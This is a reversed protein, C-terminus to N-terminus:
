SGAAALRMARLGRKYFPLKEPILSIYKMVLERYSEELYMLYCASIGKSFTSHRRTKRGPEESRVVYGQSNQHEVKEGEVIAMYYALSVLIMLSIFRKGELKAGEIDYGGRKWDRFMEEISMRMAYRLLVEDLEALNSMIYWAEKPGRGRYHRKHYAAVNIPGFGKSETVKVGTFFRKEGAKLGLQSLQRKEGDPMEIYENKKLRLAIYSRREGLWKALDVGCFERDGLLVIRYDKLLQVVPELFTVQEQYNSSGKKGLLQFHIPMGRRRYVLSVVLLNMHGWQTRDIVLYLLSNPQFQQHLRQLLLPWWITQVTWHPLSFFRQLKRRRSDVLIPLPLHQALQELRVQQLTQLTRLLLQVLLLERPNLKASLYSHLYSTM